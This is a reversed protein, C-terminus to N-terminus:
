KVHVEISKESLVTWLVNAELDTICKNNCPLPLLITNYVKAIVGYKLM